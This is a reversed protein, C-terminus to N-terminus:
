MPRVIKAGFRPTMCYLRTSHCDGICDDIKALSHIHKGKILEPFMAVRLVAGSSIGVVFGNFGLVRVVVFGVFVGFVGLLFFGGFDM